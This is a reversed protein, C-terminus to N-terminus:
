YFKRYKVKNCKKCQCRFLGVRNGSYDIYVQTPFSETRIWEHRFCM